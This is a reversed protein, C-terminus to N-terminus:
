AAINGYWSRSRKVLSFVMLMVPAEILVHRINLM